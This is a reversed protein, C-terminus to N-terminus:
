GFVPSIVYVFEKRDSVNCNHEYCVSLPCLQVIVLQVLVMSKIRVWGGVFFVCVCFHDCLVM